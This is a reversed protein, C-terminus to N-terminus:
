RRIIRQAVWGALALVYGILALASGGSIIVGDM